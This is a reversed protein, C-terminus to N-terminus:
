TMEPTQAASTPSITAESRTAACGAEPSVKSSLAMAATTSPPAESAPPRPVIPPVSIPAQTMPMRPSPITMSPTLSNQCITMLPATITPATASSWSWPQSAFRAHARCQRQARAALSDHRHERRCPPLPDEGPQLLFAAGPHAVEGGGEADRFDGDALVELQEVGLAAGDALVAAGMELRDRLPAAREGELM